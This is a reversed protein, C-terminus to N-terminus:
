SSGARAAADGLHQARQEGVDAAGADVRAPDHQALRGLEELQGLAEVVVEVAVGAVAAREAGLLAVEVLPRQGRAGPM